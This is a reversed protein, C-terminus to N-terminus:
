HPKIKSDEEWHTVGNGWAGLFLMLISRSTMVLFPNSWQAAVNINFKNILHKKFLM